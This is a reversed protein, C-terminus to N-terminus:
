GGEGLARLHREAAMGYPTDPGLERARRFAVRAEDRHGGKLLVLGLMYYASTARPALKLVLRFSEEAEQLRGLNYYAWGLNHYTGEYNSYGPASLAEKYARVAEEWKGTEAYVTGLNHHADGYARDLEVARSLEALAEQNRKLGLYAVGLANRYTANAPDLSVAEQLGSLGIATRGEGLDTMAREYTSQARLRRVEAEREAERLLGCGALLAAALPIVVTGAALRSVGWGRM